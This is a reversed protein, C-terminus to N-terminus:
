APMALINHLSRIMSVDWRALDLGDALLEERATQLGNGIFNFLNATAIADVDHRQLAERMHAGKGCGGCLILPVPLAQGIEDIMEFDFGQGTGDRTISQLLIEGAGAELMMTIRDHVSIPLASSGQGTYVIYTGDDSRQLDIGGVVCQEGCTDAIQRVISPADDFLSNVIVKDAGNAVFFSAAEVSDIGGGLTLPIFCGTAIQRIDEIFRQRDRPGRTVDVIMLEDIFASMDAIKYNKLLWRADGAKQLRFNRSLM